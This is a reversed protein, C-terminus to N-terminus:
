ILFQIREVTGKVNQPDFSIKSELKDLLFFGINNWTSKPGHKLCTSAKQSELSM